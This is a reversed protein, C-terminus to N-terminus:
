RHSMELLVRESDSIFYCTPRVYARNNFIPRCRLDITPPNKDLLCQQGMVHMDHDVDM